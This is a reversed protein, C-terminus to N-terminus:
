DSAHTVQEMLGQIENIDNNISEVRLAHAERQHKLNPTIVQKCVDEFDLIQHGGHNKVCKLCLSAKDQYCFLMLLQGPHIQCTSSPEM